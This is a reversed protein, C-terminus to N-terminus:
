HLSLANFAALPAEEGRIYGRMVFVRNVVHEVCVSSGEPFNRELLACLKEESIGKHTYRSVDSANKLFIPDEIPGAFRGDKFHDEQHWEDGYQAGYVVRFGVKGNEDPSSTVINFCENLYVECPGPLLAFFESALQLLLDSIRSPSLNFKTRLTAEAITM